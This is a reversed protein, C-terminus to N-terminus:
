SIPLHDSQKPMETRTAYTGGLYGTWYLNISVKLNNSTYQRGNLTVEVRNDGDIWLESWCKICDHTEDHEAAVPDNSGIQCRYDTGGGFGSGWVRVMIYRGSPHTVKPQWSGLASQVVPVSLMTVRPAQYYSFLVRHASYQQGNQSIELAVLGFGQLPSPCVVETPSLWTGNATYSAWRCLTRFSSLFSTGTVTVLVGGLMTGSAPSISWIRPPSYFDYAARSTTYQQGNLSVAVPCSLSSNSPPTACWLVGLAVSISAPTREGALRCWYPGIGYVFGAGYLVLRTGGDMPGANPEILEVVPPAYFVYQVGDANDLTRGDKVMSARLVIIGPTVLAPSRCALTQQAGDWSAEVRTTDFVCRLSSAGDFNAPVLAVLNLLTGGDMPGGIPFVVRVHPEGYYTYAGGDLTYQQANLSVKVAAPTAALLAGVTVRLGDVWHEATHTAGTPAGFGFRSEDRLSWMGPLVTESLAAACDVSAASHVVSLRKDLLRVSARLWAEPSLQGFGCQVSAVLEANLTIFIANANALFSICLGDVIGHEIIPAYSLDGMCFSVCDGIANWGATSFGGGVWLDFAADFARAHELALPAFILGNGQNKLGGATLQLVGDVALVPLLTPGRVSFGSSDSYDFSLSSSARAEDAPPAKCRLETSGLYDAVM